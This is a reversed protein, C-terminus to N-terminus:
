SEGCLDMEDSLGCLSSVREAPESDALTWGKFHECCTISLSETLERLERFARLKRLKGWLSGEPRDGIESTRDTWVTLFGERCAGFRRPDLGQFARLLYHKLKRYARQARQISQAKKAKGM